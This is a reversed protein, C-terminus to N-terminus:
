VLSFKIPYRNIVTTSWVEGLTEGGHAFNKIELAEDITRGQSDLHSPGFPTM